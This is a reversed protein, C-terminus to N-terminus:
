LHSLISIGCGMVVVHTFEIGLYCYSDLITLSEGGLLKGVQLYVLLLVSVGIFAVHQVFATERNEICYQQKLQVVCNKLQYKEKKYWQKLYM